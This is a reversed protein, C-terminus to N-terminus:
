VVASGHVADREAGQHLAALDDLRHALADQAAHGQIVDLIGEGVLHDELGVLLDVLVLDALDLLRAQLLHLDARHEGALGPTPDAHLAVAAVQRAAALHVDALRYAHDGRLRD